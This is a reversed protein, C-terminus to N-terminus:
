LRFELGSKILLSSLDSSLLDYSPPNTYTKFTKPWSVTKWIRSSKRLTVHLIKKPNYLNIENSERKNGILVTLTFHGKGGRLSYQYLIM